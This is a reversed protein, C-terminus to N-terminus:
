ISIESILLDLNALNPTERVGENTGFRSNGYRQAYTQIPMPLKSLQVSWYNFKQNLELPHRSDVNSLLGRSLSYYFTATNVM